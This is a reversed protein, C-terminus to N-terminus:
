GKVEATLLKRLGALHSQRAEQPSDFLRLSVKGNNAALAPYAMLKMGHRM